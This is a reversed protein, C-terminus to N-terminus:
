SLRSDRWTKRRMAEVVNGGLTGGSRAASALSAFNRMLREIGRMPPRNVSVTLGDATSDLAVYGPSGYDSPVVAAEVAGGAGVVTAQRGAHTHGSVIASVKHCALVRHGLTLNGFYANRTSSLLSGRRRCLQEEVLPVHTVVVITSVTGDADLEDLRACLAEARDRAFDPDSWSWDVFRADMSHFGKVKVTAYYDSPMAPLCSDIASYDYWAVSGVVALSGERWTAGELWIAGADSAATPLDRELLQRSHHSGYAWVDHNGPLVALQGPLDRLLALSRVFNEICEGVDGAVITLDPQECAIHDRLAHIQDVSTVGLHLDSTVVVHTM